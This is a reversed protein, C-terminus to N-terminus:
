LRREIKEDEKVRSKVCKEQLNACTGNSGAVNYKLFPVHPYM